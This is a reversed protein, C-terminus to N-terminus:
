SGGDAWRCGRPYGGVPREPEVFATVPVALTDAVASLPLDVTFFIKGDLPLWDLQDAYYRVGSYAGPCDRWSRVSQCGVSALATALLLARAALAM